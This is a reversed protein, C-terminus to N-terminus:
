FWIDGSVLKLHKTYSLGLCTLPLQKHMPPLPLSFSSEKLFPYLFCCTLTGICVASLWYMSIYLPFRILHMLLDIDWAIARPFRNWLFLMIYRCIQISYGLEMPDKPATGGQFDSVNFYSLTHNVFGHMTGSESYMYLYVLRPIFDSTFSIM